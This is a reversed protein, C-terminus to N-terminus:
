IILAQVNLLSGPGITSRESYRNFLFSMYLYMCFMNTLTQSDHMKQFWHVPPQFFSLSNVLLHVWTPPPWPSSKVMPQGSLQVRVILPDEDGGRFRVGQRVKGCHLGNALVWASPLLTTNLSNPNFMHSFGTFTETYVKLIRTPPDVRRTAGLVLETPLNEQKNCRGGGVWRSPDSEKKPRERGERYPAWNWIEGPPAGAHTQLGVM